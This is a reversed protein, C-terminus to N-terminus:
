HLAPPHFQATPLSPCDQMALQPGPSQDTTRPLGPTCGETQPVEAVKPSCVDSLAHLVAYPHGAQLRTLCHKLQTMIEATLEVCQIQGTTGLHGASAGATQRGAAFAFEGTGVCVVPPPTGTPSTLLYALSSGTPSSGALPGLAATFSFTVSNSKNCYSVSAQNLTVIPAPCQLHPPYPRRSFVSTLHPHLIHLPRSLSPTRRLLLPTQPTAAYSMYPPSRLMISAAAPNM